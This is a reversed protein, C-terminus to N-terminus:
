SILGVEEIQVNAVCPLANIEEEFDRGSGDETVFSAQVVKSGFVFDVVAGTNFGDIKKVAELVEEPTSGEEQFVKMSCLVKGM